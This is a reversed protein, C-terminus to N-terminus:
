SVQLTCCASTIAVLILLDNGSHHQTNNSTKEAPQLPTTSDLAVSLPVEVGACMHMRPMYQLVAPLGALRAQTLSEQAGQRSLITM